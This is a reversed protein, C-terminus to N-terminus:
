WRQIKFFLASQDRQLVAETSLEPASAGEVKAAEIWNLLDSSRLIRYTVGPLSPWRLHFEGTFGPPTQTLTFPRPTAWLAAYIHSGWNDVPAPRKGTFTLTISSLPVSPRFITFSRNENWPVGATLMGTAPNWIPPTALELPPRDPANIYRSLDGQMFVQLVDPSLAAGGVGRCEIRVVDEDDVDLVMLDVLQTAFMLDYTLKITGTNAVLANIRLNTPYVKTFEPQDNAPSGRAFENDWISQRQAGTIAEDTDFHVSVVPFGQGWRIDQRSWDGLVSGNVTVFVPGVPTQNDNDIIQVLCSVTALQAGVSPNSLTIRVGQTPEPDGDNLIPVRIFESQQGAAFTLVGSVDSYDERVIAGNSPAASYYVSVVSNLNGTRKVELKAESEFEPISVNSITFGVIAPSDAVEQYVITAYAFNTDAISDRGSYGTLGVRGNPVVALSTVNIGNGVKGWLLAGDTGAYKYCGGDVGIIVNGREDVALGAPGTPANGLNEWLLAGDAAAFKATYARPEGNWLTRTLVLNGSSDVALYSPSDAAGAGNSRYYTKEWLVTGDGASYKIMHHDSELEAGGGFSYGTVFVNGNSDVGLSQAADFSNQPGNYRQEWLLDGNTTGYKATYFDGNEGNDYSAGTVVVNGSRDVAVVKARGGGRPGRREWLLAGNTGAYKATYFDLGDADSGASAVLVVNGESDVAIVAQYVGLHRKEWVLAGDSAAYKAICRETESSGSVFVNGDHDLAIPSGIRFEGDYRDWSGEYSRRWIVSGDTGSYKIAILRSEGSGDHTTGAVIFNGAIDSIIKFPQDSANTLGNDSYRQLWAEILAAQAPQVGFWLVALCLPALIRRRIFLAPAVWRTIQINM